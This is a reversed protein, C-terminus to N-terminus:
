NKPSTISEWVGGISHATPVAKQMLFGAATFFLIALVVPLWTRQLAARLWHRQEVNKMQKYLATVLLGDVLVEALLAPAIYVVYLSAVLGGCIAILALVLLCGEGLDLDISVSDLLSSKGGSSSSMSEGWSGGAGGGGFDGGGGFSFNYGSGRVSSSFDVGSLDFGTSPSRDKSQLYRDKSQLYLWLRLLLLFVCYALLIAVPYRLWMRTVGAHLLVFSTLFGASGTLLLILLMQFRPLGGRLLRKKVREIAREREDM